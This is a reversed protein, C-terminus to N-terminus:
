KEKLIWVGDWNEPPPTELFFDCRARYLRSLSDEPEIELGESFLKRADSFQALRYHELARSYKALLPRLREIKTEEVWDLVEFVSVPHLKGKVQIKDVERTLYSNRLERATLESILIQTGYQKNASELRSALNVGDGIVTYDMRKESGINGSVVEDTNIGLGMLVPDHGAAVRRRNLERLATLMGIAAQVAHDADEPTSFPAGFVAMIADGIYKDLFGGRELIIDVMISFYENLLKVTEQPGIREAISTFSRIDSFLVSVKQIKGGLAAEGEELLKDVVEKTMYRAMTNKLRKENSIDEIMLISGSTVNQADTLPVVSLNVSAHDRRGKGLGDGASGGVLWLDADVSVDPKGTRQVADVADSIWSNKAGLFERIPRSAFAEEPQGFLRIAAANLKVITGSDDVTVVGNAISQLISENYNKVKVVEDFLRANEIAVSVQASFTRLLREHYKTFVGSKPNLAQTVAIIKGQRSAVPMCLISKTLYNTKKDVERNFRSDAYADPINITEGSTFVSGAIGKTSPFRITSMAADQSVCAWLEGTKDDHVFLTARDAELIKGVAAMIKKLLPLLELESCLATTVDMIQTEDARARTMQDRLQAAVIAPAAQAILPEIRGQDAADFSAGGNKSSIEIVGAILDASVRIPIAMLSDVLEGDSRVAQGLKTPSRGDQAPSVIVAEGNSFVEGVIGESPRFRDEGLAGPTTSARRYLEEREPDHLFIDCRGSDTVSSALEALRNLVSDIGLTAALSRSAELDTESGIVRQALRLVLEVREEDTAEALMRLTEDPALTRALLADALDFKTTM